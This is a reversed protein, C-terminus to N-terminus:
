NWDPSQGGGRGAERMGSTAARRGPAVARRVVAEGVLEVLRGVDALEDSPLEPLEPLLSEARAKVPTGGSNGHSTPVPARM